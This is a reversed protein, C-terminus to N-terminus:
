QIMALMGQLIRRETENLEPVNNSPPAEPGQRASDAAIKAPQDIGHRKQDTSLGGQPPPAERDYFDAPVPIATGETAKLLYAALATRMIHSRVGAPYRLLADYLILDERKSVNFNIHCSKYKTM